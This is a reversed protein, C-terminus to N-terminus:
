WVSMGSYQFFCAAGTVVLYSLCYSERQPCGLKFALTPDLWYGDIGKSERELSSAQGNEQVRRMRKKEKLVRWAVIEIDSLHEAQM